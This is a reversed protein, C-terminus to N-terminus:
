GGIHKRKGGATATPSQQHAAPDGGGGAGLDYECIRQPDNRYLKACVGLKLWALENQHLPHETRLPQSSGVDYLSVWRRKGLTAALERAQGPGSHAGMQIGSVPGQHRHAGIKSFLAEELDIGRQSNASGPQVGVHVRNPGM